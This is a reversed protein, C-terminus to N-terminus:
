LPEDVTCENEMLKVIEIYDEITIARMSKAIPLLKESLEFKGKRSALKIVAEMTETMELGSTYGEQAQELIYSEKEM